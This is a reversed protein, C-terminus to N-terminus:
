HSAVFEALAEAVDAVTDTWQMAHVPQRFLRLVGPYWLCDSVGHRWRWDVGVNPLLVWTKTGLAASLHAVATDVAIVLDLQSVIAATDAFSSVKDGLSLIPKDGIERAIDSETCEKQLSVFTVGNVSWLPDLMRLSPLSRTADQTNTRSGRWALGVKKSTGGLLPRWKERLEDTSRLYPIQAPITGPREGLNLPISFACTWFDHDPSGSAYYMDRTMAVDAEEISAFLPVLAAEGVLTIRSAGRERLRRVYRALQIQDGFGQEPWILVSKGILPEGHWQPFTVQPKPAHPGSLFAEHRTEWLPLGEEWRDVSLLLLGLSAAHHVHGPNLELATRYAAEAEPFRQLDLLISALAAFAVDSSPHLAIARRAYSEAEPMQRQARFLRTLDLYAPLADPALQVVREFRRISQQPQGKDRYLVGLNGLTAVCDRNKTLIQSWRREALDLEGLNFHCTGALGLLAIESRQSAPLTAIEELAEAYKSAAYLANARAVKQEVSSATQKFTLKLRFHDPFSPTPNAAPRRRSEARLFALRRFADWVLPSLKESAPQIQSCSSLPSISTIFPFVFGSTLTGHLVLNKLVLDYATDLSEISKLIELLKLKSRANLTYATAGAFDIQRTDYVSVQDKLSRRLQFLRMMWSATPICLDTFVIDKEELEASLRTLLSASNTGFIADDELILSPGPDDLSLEIAKM